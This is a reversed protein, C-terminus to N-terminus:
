CLFIDSSNVWFHFVIINVKLFSSRAMNEEVEKQEKWLRELMALFILFAVVFFFHHITSNGSDVHKGVAAALRSVRGLGLLCGCLSVCLVERLLIRSHCISTQISRQQMDDQKKRPANIGMQLLYLFASSAVFTFMAIAGLRRM